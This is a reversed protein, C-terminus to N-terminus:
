LGPTSIITTIVEEPTANAPIIFNGAKISSAANMEALLTNFQEVSEFLGVNVFKEAIVSTSEGYNIYISYIDVEGGNEGDIGGGSTSNGVVASGSTSGNEGIPVALGFNENTQNEQQAAAVIAPYEMINNISFWIVICAVGVICIATLIDSVDYIIDKFKGM